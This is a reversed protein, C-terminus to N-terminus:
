PASLEVVKNISGFDPTNLTLDLLSPSVRSFKVDNINHLLAQSPPSAASHEASTYSRVLIGDQFTYDVRIVDSQLPRNITEKGQRMFEISKGDPAIKLTNPLIQLIDQSFVWLTKQLHSLQQTRDNYRLRDEAVHQLLSHGGLAILSTIMMAVVLELLSFGRATHFSM